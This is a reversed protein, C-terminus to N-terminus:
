PLLDTKNEEGEINKYIESLIKAKRYNGLDLQAKIDHLLDNLFKTKEFNVILKM